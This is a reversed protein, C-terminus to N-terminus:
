RALALAGHPALHDRGAAARHPALGDRHEPQGELGVGVVHAVRGRDVHDRGQLIGAGPDPGVIRLAHLRGLGHQRVHVVGLVGIVAGAVGVGQHMTVSHSM